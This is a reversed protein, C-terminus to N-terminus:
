QLYIKRLLDCFRSDGLGLSVLGCLIQECENQFTIADVRPKGKNDAVDEAYKLCNNKIMLTKVFM